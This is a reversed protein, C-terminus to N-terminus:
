DGAYVLAEVDAESSVDCPVALAERGLARIEDALSKLDSETRAAAVIHAGERALAVAAARGIGRSAGTVLAVKDQITTRM